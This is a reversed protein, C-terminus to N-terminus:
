KSTSHSEFKENLSILRWRSGECAFRHISAYAPEMVRIRQPVGLVQCTWANIVGGHCVALVEQDRHRDALRNFTAAIRAHFAEATLGWPSLDGAFYKKWVPSAANDYHVYDAGFDFEVLGPDVLVRSESGAAVIHATQLARLQPSSYVARYAAPRIHRAAEAAQDRGTESLAPDRPDVGNRQPEGHRM